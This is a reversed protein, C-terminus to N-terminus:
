SENALYEEFARLDRLSDVAFFQGEHVYAGVRGRESLRPLIDIEFSAQESSILDLVVKEVIMFGGSIVDADTTAKEAFSQVKSDRLIPHGFRSPPRVATLTVSNGASIHEKALESIDVNAISDSYALYFRDDLHAMSLMLRGATQTTLGTEVVTVEISQQDSLYGYDLFSAAGRAYKVAQGPLILSSFYSHLQYSLYGALVLFRRVGQNEFIRIVHRILPEGSAMVLPKPTAGTIESMRSGFGGALIVCQEPISSSEHSM